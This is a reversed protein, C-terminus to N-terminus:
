SRAAAKGGDSGGAVEVIVTFDTEFLEAVVVHKTREWTEVSKVRIAYASPEVLIQRTRESELVSRMAM